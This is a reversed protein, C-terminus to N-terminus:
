AQPAPAGARGALQRRPLELGGRGRGLTQRVTLDGGPHEERLLRDLPVEAADVGLQAHARAGLQRAPERPLRLALRSLAPTSSSTTSPAPGAATSRARARRPAGKKAQVRQLRRDGASTSRM